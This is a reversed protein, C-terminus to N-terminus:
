KEVDFSIKTLRGNEETYTARLICTYRYMGFAFINEDVTVKFRIKYEDMDADYAYTAESLPQYENYMFLREDMAYTNNIYAEFDSIARNYVQEKSFSEKNVLEEQRIMEELLALSERTALDAEYYRVVDFTQQNCLVVYNVTVEGDATDYWESEIYFEYPVEPSDLYYLEFSPWHETEYVFVNGTKVGYARGGITERTFEVSRGTEDFWTGYWLSLETEAGYGNEWTTCTEEGCDCPVYLAYKKELFSEEADQTDEPTMEESENKGIENGSADTGQVESQVAENEGKPVEPQSECGTMALVCMMLAVFRKGKDM